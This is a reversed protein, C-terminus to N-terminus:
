LLYSPWMDAKDSESDDEPPSELTCNILERTFRPRHYLVLMDIGTRWAGHRFM